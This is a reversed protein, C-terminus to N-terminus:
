EILERFVQDLVLGYVGLVEGAEDLLVSHIRDLGLTRDRVNERGAELLAKADDTELLEAVGKTAVAEETASVGNGGRPGTPPSGASHWNARVLAM